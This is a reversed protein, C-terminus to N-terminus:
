YMIEALKKGIDVFIATLSDGAISQIKDDEPFGGDMHFRVAESLGKERACNEHLPVFGDRGIGGYQIDLRRLAPVKRLTLALDRVFAYKDEGYMSDPDPNSKMERYATVMEEAVADARAQDGYLVTEQQAPNLAQYQNTGAPGVLITTWKWGQGFDFYTERVCAAVGTRDMFIRAARRLRDHEPTGPNFVAIQRSM